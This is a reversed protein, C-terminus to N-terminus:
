GAALAAPAAAALTTTRHRIILGTRAHQAESTADSLFVLLPMFITRLPLRQVIVHEAGRGAHALLDCLRPSTLEVEGEDTQLRMAKPNGRWGAVRWTSVEGRIRDHVSSLVLDDPTITLSGAPSALVVSPRFAILGRMPTPHAPLMLALGVEDSQVPLMRLQQVNRGLQLTPGYDLRVDPECLRPLEGYIGHRGAWAVFASVLAVEGVFHQFAGLDAAEVLVQDTGTGGLMGRFPAGGDAQLYM